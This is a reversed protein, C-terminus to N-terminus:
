TLECARPFSKGCGMKPCKHMNKGADTRAHPTKVGAGVEAPKQYGLEKLIAELSGKDELARLLGVAQGNNSLIDLGALSAKTTNSKEPHNTMGSRSVHLTGGRESLGSATPSSIQLSSSEDGEDDDHVTTTDEPSVGRASGFFQEGIGQASQDTTQEFNGPGACLVGSSQAEGSLQVFSDGNERFGAETVPGDDFYCSGEFDGVGHDINSESSALDELLGDQCHQADSPEVNSLGTESELTFTPMHLTPTAVEDGATSSRLLSTVRQVVAADQQGSYEPFTDSSGSAQEQCTPAPWLGSSLM